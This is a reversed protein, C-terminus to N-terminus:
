GRKERERFGRASLKTQQRGGGGVESGAEEKKKNPVRKMGPTVEEKENKRFKKKQRM